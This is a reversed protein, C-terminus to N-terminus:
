ESSQFDLVAPFASSIYVKKYGSPDPRENESFFFLSVRSYISYNPIFHGLGPVGKTSLSNEEETLDLKQVFNMSNRSLKISEHVSYQHFSCIKENM